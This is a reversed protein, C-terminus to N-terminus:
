VQSQPTITHLKLEKCYLIIPIDSRDRMLHQFEIRFIKLITKSMFVIISFKEQLVFSILQVFIKGCFQSILDVCCVRARHRSRRRLEPESYTPIVSSKDSSSSSVRVISESSSMMRLVTVLALLALLLKLCLILLDKLM